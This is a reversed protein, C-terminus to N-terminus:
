QELFENTITMMGLYLSTPWFEVALNMDRFAEILEMEKIMMYSVQAAKRSLADVM